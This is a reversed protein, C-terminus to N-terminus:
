LSAALNFNTENNQKKVSNLLAQGNDSQILKSLLFQIQENSYTDADPILSELIAGREILRHTREKRLKESLYKQEKRNRIKSASKMQELRMKTTELSIWAREYNKKEYDSMADYVAKDAKNLKEPDFAVNEM